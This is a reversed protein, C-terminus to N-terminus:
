HTKDEEDNEDDGLDEQFQDSTIALFEEDLNAHGDEDTEAVATIDSFEEFSDTIPNYLKVPTDDDFEALLEDVLEYLELLTM